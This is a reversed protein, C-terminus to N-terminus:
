VTFRRIVFGLPVACVSSVVLPVLVHGLLLHRPGEAACSLQLVLAGVAAAGALSVLAARQPREVWGRMVFALLVGIPFSAFVVSSRFCMTDASLASGYSFGLLVIHLICVAAAAALGTLLM